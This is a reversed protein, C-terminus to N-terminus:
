EKNLTEDFNLIALCTVTWAAHEIPDITENRKSEGAALFEKAEEPSSAFQTQAQRCSATLLHLEEDTPKRALVLQFAKEARANSDASVSIVREALHRAAEVYTIDNLTTLAHLPSNNRTPKVNCTMRSPTDFFLTPGVIRRWFTYLSRRYLANNEDQKYKKKGFTAEEWVGAPQYPNVPAGGIKKVLLGSAALAQDRLMWSPMRYRPGRSLLRNSPDREHLDSTVRSTQRYTGSMVILRVLKKVDWGSDRFESALWDLLEPHSPLEGKTGFDETTKVLGAGFFMQWVRNVTVRPTLPNEASVLWQALALRNRAANEPLAPLRAPTAASVEEVPKSYLGKDLIFTKRPSKMEEMVMVKPVNKSFANLAKLAPQVERLAKTFDPLSTEFEKSLTELDAATLKTAAKDLLLKIEPSSKEAAPSASPKQKEPRPFFEKKANEMRSIASRYNKELETLRAKQNPNGIEL